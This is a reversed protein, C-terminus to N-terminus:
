FMMRLSLEVSRGTGPVEDFSSRYEKDLINNFAVGFRYRDDEGFSGGFALNLTAWGPLRKLPGGEERETVGTSARLYLDSWIAHGAMEGEWRLGFRGSLSPTNSHYTSVGDLTLERRMWAGNVYPTFRTGPLTYEAALELGYTRASDANAYIFKELTPKPDHSPCMLPKCVARTIYDQAESYFVTADLTLGGSDYRAGVEVNRSTEPKLAPNGYIFRTSATSDTFMQFLTPTIYGESYLARLTTDEIGTYTLGLSTVFRGDTRGKYGKRATDSTDALDTRTNYYRAGGTLKLDDTLSWENQAFASITRISADDTASDRSPLPFPTTYSVTTTKSAELGDDLYHLGVITYHDPHFQLDVQATAGLNANLDESVVKQNRPGATLENTFLRDVEQYYADLHIKRVIDSIDTGDYYLGVKRLDRRPLDIRFNTGPKLTDPDTWSESWLRHQMAKV